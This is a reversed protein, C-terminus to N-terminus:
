KHVICFVTRSSGFRFLQHVAAKARRHTVYGQKYFAPFQIRKLASLCDNGGDARKKQQDIEIALYIDPHTHKGTKQLKPHAHLFHLYFREGHSKCIGQKTDAAQNSCNLLNDIVASIIKRSARPPVPLREAQITHM